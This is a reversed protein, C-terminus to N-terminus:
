REERLRRRRTEFEEDDLEGRAYPERLEALARDPEDSSQFQSGRGLVVLVLVILGVLLLLWLIWWVGFLGWSENMMEGTRQQPAAIATPVAGLVLGALLVRHAIRGLRHLSPRM